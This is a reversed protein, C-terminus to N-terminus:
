KAIKLSEFAVWLERYYGSSLLFLNNDIMDQLHSKLRNTNYSIRKQLGATKGSRLPINRKMPYVFTNLVIEGHRRKMVSFTGKGTLLLLDDTTMEGMQPEETLADYDKKSIRVEEGGAEFVYHDGDPSFLDGVPETLPSFDVDSQLISQPISNGLNTVLVDSIMKRIDKIQEDNDWILHELLLCDSADVGSRGNLYASTKLIHVIKRWRRDSVYPVSDMSSEDDDQTLIDRIDCIIQCIEDPVKIREVYDGMAALEEDSFKMTEEVQCPESRETLLRLFTRQNQIPKVVYRVLFRDWLAELGEGEAPLENSASLITKVPLHLDQNGNHFIKENLVTLLANQIAPGAKWIEDLFIVDATPLYGEVVREYTDEEKLKTISVPGFIEDPTSFRSMLYEFSNAKKFALKLRRSIMSKGVGPLGLLFISEGSMAALLALSIAEEREYAGRSMADMLYKIRERIENM